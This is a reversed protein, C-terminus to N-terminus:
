VHSSDVEEKEEKLFLLTKSVLHIFAKMTEKYNPPIFYSTAKFPTYVKMSGFSLEPIHLLKREGEGIVYYIIYAKGDLGCMTYWNHNSNQNTHDVFVSRYENTSKLVREVAQEVDPIM